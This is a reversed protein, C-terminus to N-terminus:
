QKISCDTLAQSFLEKEFEPFPCHCWSAPCRLPRNHFNISKYINGLASNHSEKSLSFCSFINGNPLIVASNYGANCWKGKRFFAEKYDSKLGFLDLERKTYSQPYIRGKYNGFFHRTEFSVGAKHFFDKHHNIQEALPPYAVVTSTVQFGKSKLLLYNDIFLNTLRKNNLEKIHLSATISRIRRPSIADGFQAIKKSTLNSVLSIYHDQSIAEFAQIINPVLFPEGGGFHILFTKKSRNLTNLAATIDLAPAITVLRSASSIFKSVQNRLQRSNTAYVFCYDCLFNCKQTLVWYLSAQYPLNGM